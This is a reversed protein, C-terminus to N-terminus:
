AVTVIVSAWNEKNTDRSRLKVIATPSDAFPFKDGLVYCPGGEFDFMTQNGKEDVAGRSYLSHGEVLYINTRVQHIIRIDGYRSKEQLPGVFKSRKRMPTKRWLDQIKKLLRM